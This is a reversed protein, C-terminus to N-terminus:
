ASSGYLELGIFLAICYMNKVFRTVHQYMSDHLTAICARVYKKKLEHGIWWRISFVSYTLFPGVLLKLIPVTKKKKTEDFNEIFCTM